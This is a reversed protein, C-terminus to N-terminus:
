IGFIFDFFRFMMFCIVEILIIFELFKMEVIINEINYGNVFFVFNFFSGMLKFKIYDWGGM